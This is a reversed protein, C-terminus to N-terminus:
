GIKVLFIKASQKVNIIFIKSINFHYMKLHNVICSLVNRFYRHKIENVGWFSSFTM